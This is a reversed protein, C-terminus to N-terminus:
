KVNRCLTPQGVSQSPFVSRGGALFLELRLDARGGWMLLLGHVLCEQCMTCRQWGEPVQDILILLLATATYLFKYV